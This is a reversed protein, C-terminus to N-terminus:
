SSIGAVKGVQSVFECSRSAPVFECAEVSSLFECAEFNPVFECSRFVISAQFEFECSESAFSVRM